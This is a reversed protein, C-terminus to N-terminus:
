LSPSDLYWRAGMLGGRFLAKWFNSNQQSDLLPERGEMIRGEEVLINLLTRADRGEADQYELIEECPLQYVLVNGRHGLSPQPPFREWLKLLALPLETIDQKARLAYPPFESSEDLYFGTREDKPDLELTLTQLAKKARNQAELATTGLALVNGVKEVNNKPFQVADGSEYRLFVEEVGPLQQAEQSGGIKKLTGDIAILARESCYFSKKPRCDGADLGVALRLAGSTPQVGSALPWTWGSMYGGSLRAAIEGIMPGEQTWKLDGKAAGRTLGLAQIGKEFAEWLGREVDPSCSSPITHGIEIFYPAHAIHRDALGCPIVRGDEVLADLSFEPGDMYTEVLARHSRSYGRATSLAQPLQQVDDIRVVGRAGMSDVPKVVWPGPVSDLVQQLSDEAGMEMFAPSPVDHELFAQRMAIKDTAKWAADPHHGPLGFHAAVQSVAFSFDTGATFVGDLGGDDMLKQAVEILGDLDKLDVPFFQDALDRGSAEPNGDVAAVHWGMQKALQLAPEQMTGCGLILITKNNNSM